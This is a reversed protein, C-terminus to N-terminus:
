QHDAASFQWLEIEGVLVPVFRDSNQLLFHLPRDRYKYPVLIYQVGERELEPAVVMERLQTWFEDPPSWTTLGTTRTVFAAYEPPVLVRGDPISAAIVSLDRTPEAMGILILHNLTLFLLLCVFVLLTYYRAAPLIWDRNWLRRLFHAVLLAACVGGLLLVETFFLGVLLLALFLIILGRKQREVILLGGELIALLLYLLSPALLSGFEVFTPAAYSPRGLPLLILLGVVGVLCLRAVRRMRLSTVTVLPLAAGFLTIPPSLLYLLALLPPFILVRDSRSTFFIGLLLPIILALPNPSAFISIFLPNAVVVITWPGLLSLLLLVTALGAAISLLILAEPAIVSLLIGYLGSWAYSQLFPVLPNGLHLRLLLPVFLLLATVVIIFEQQLRKM